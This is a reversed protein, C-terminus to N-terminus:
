HCSSADDHFRGGIAAGFWQQWTPCRVCAAEGVNVILELAEPGAELPHADVFRFSHMYHDKPGEEDGGGGVEDEGAGGGITGVVHHDLEGEGRGGVEGVEAEGGEDTAVAEM